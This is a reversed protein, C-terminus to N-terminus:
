RPLPGSAGGSALDRHHPDAVQLLVERDVAPDHPLLDARDVGDVAHVEVDGRALDEAEHALRAAALRREPRVSSRSISGVDPEISNLPWSRSFHEWFSSRGSRRLICIMKWSGNPDSLGRIGTLSMM